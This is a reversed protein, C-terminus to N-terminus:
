ELAIGELEGFPGARMDLEEVDGPPAPFMAILQYPEGPQLEHVEEALSAYKGDASKMQAVYRVLDSDPELLQFGGLTGKEFQDPGGPIRAEESDFELETPEDSTNTLEVTGIVYAGDRRLPYVDLRVDDETESATVEGLEPDFPAPESVNREAAGLSDEQDGNGSDQGPSDRDVEYSFEVRRNRARAEEDDPGGEEAVPEESGRGEVDFAYDEGLEERLLDRVTEAREESLEDNYSDSGKGDTHGIVTIESSEPDINRELSAAAKTVVEEAEGTLTSEDFEFMVDSHLAMTEQDGDRTTSALDSDVFSELDVDVAQAESDPRRVEFTLNTGDPPETRVYEDGNPDPTPKEEEVDQIPIGTMAGMGRGVFTVQRVDEPIRPFYVRYENAVGEHVPFRGSDKPGHSGYSTVGDEDIYQNYVRGNVPDVLTPPTSMRTNSGRLQDKYSAEYHLVTHEPTRELGTISLELETDQGTDLFVRGTKTYPFDEEVPEPEPSEPSPSEGDEGPKELDQVLGCGSLLLSGSVLSSALALPTKRVM